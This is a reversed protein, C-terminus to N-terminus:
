RGPGAGAPGGFPDDIEPRVPPGTGSSGALGASGAPGALRSPGAPGAGAQAGVVEEEEAWGAYGTKELEDALEPGGSV